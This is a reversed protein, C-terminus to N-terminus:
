IGHLRHMEDDEHVVVVPPVPEVVPPPPEESKKAEPDELFPTQGESVMPADDHPGPGSGPMVTAPIQDAPVQSLGAPIDTTGKMDAGSVPGEETVTSGKEAAQTNESDKEALKLGPEFGFLHKVAKVEGEIKTLAKALPNSENAAMWKEFLSADVESIGRGDVASSHNSGNILASKLEPAAGPKDKFEEPLPEVMTFSMSAASAVKVTDPM